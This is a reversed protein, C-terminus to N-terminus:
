EARALAQNATYTAIDVIERVSSHLPIVGVPRGTGVVLPGLAEADSLKVLLKYAINASTLDPFVLVNPPGTLTTFPFQGRMKGWDIATDAQMEGDIELDPARERVIQVAKRVKAVAPHDHLEGFDSFSLMAVRPRQGFTEAVRATNIAIAALTEANPEINVTCDGFFIKRDKFLMAYVASVVDSDDAKGLVQLAPRLTQKYPKGDGGVLGDVLGKHAMMAAFYVPERVRSRASALTTGKRRRLEWLAEAMEEHREGSTDVIEFGSIDVRAQEARQAIRKPDGVLVPTCIRQEVLIQAARLVTTSPEPLAIRTAPRLRARQVLPHMLGRSREVLRHLEERYADLDAIPKRAVGSRAAAEAVAPAVYLLVRADFPKPIIYEPGFRLESVEYARLVQDPVDEKALKALALTAALKM